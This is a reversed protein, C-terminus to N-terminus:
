AAALDVLIKKNLDSAPRRPENDLMCLAGLPTGECFIPAGCYYRLHTPGTVLPNSSFREDKTADTVEFLGEYYIPYNCFAMDRPTEKADLGVRAYFWQKGDDLMTAAGMPVGFLAKAIEVLRTVAEHGQTDVVNLGQLADVRGEEDARIPFIMM